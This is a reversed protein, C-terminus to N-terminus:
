TEINVFLNKGMIKMLKSHNQYKVLLLHLRSIFIYKKFYTDKQIFIDLVIDHKYTIGHQVPSYLLKNCTFVDVTKYLYKLHIEIEILVENQKM